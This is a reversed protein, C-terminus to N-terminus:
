WPRRSRATETMEQGQKSQFNGSDRRNKNLLISTPFPAGPPPASRSMSHSPGACRTRGHTRWDTSLVQALRGSTLYRDAAQLPGSFASCQTGSQSASQSAPQSAAHTPPIRHASNPSMTSAPIADPPLLASPPRPQTSKPLLALAISATCCISPNRNPPRLMLTQKIVGVSPAGKSTARCRALRQFCGV